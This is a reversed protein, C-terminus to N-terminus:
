GTRDGVGRNGVRNTPLPVQCGTSQAANVSHRLQRHSMQAVGRLAFGTVHVCARERVAARIHRVYRLRLADVRFFLLMLAVVATGYDMLALVMALPECASWM